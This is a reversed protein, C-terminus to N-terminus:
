GFRSKSNGFGMIQFHRGSVANPPSNNLAEKSTQELWSKHFGLEGCAAEKGCQDCWILNVVNVTATIKVQM